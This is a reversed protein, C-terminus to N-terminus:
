GLDGQFTCNLYMLDEAAREVGRVTVVQNVGTQVYMANRFGQSMAVWIIAQLLELLEM